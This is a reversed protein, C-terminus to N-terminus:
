HDRLVPLIYDLLKLSPNCFQDPSYFGSLVLVFKGSLVFPAQLSIEKMAPLPYPAKHFEVTVSLVWLRFISGKKWYESVVEETKCAM